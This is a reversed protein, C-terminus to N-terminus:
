FTARLALAARYAIRDLGLTVFPLATSSASTPEGRDDVWIIRFQPVVSLHRGVQVLVDGGIMAGFATRTVEQEPGFPGCSGGFRCESVRDLSSEFVIGAGAVMGVRVRRRGAFRHFVAFVSTEQYRSIRGFPNFYGHGQLIKNRAFPLDLEAGIASNPTPSWGAECILRLVASDDSTNQYSESASGTWSHTGWSSMEIAGGVYPHSEQARALTTSSLFALLIVPARAFRM